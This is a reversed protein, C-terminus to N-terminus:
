LNTENKEVVLSFSMHTTSLPLVVLAVYAKDRRSTKKNHALRPLSAKIDTTHTIKKHSRDFLKRTLEGHKAFCPGMSTRHPLTTPSNWICM